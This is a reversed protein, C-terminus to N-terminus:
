LSDFENIYYNVQGPWLPADLDKNGLYVGSILHTRSIQIFYNHKGKEQTCQSSKNKGIVMILTVSYICIIYTRSYM